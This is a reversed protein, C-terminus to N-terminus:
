VIRNSIFCLQEPALTLLYDRVVQQTTVKKTEVYLKHLKYIIPKFSWTMTEYNMVHSIYTMMYERHISNVMRMFKHNIQSYQHVFEPYYSYFEELKGMKALRFYNYLHSPSNGRLEQIRDYIDTRVKYRLGDTSTLIYGEFDYEKEEKAATLLQEYSEFAQQEPRSIGRIALTVEKMLSPDYTLTHILHPTEYKTVIRNEPHCLVFSYCYKPNLQSYDLNKSAEVFLEYFSKEGYFKARLANICRTTAVMWNGNYNYLRLQTGDIAKQVNVSQWDDFAFMVDERKRYTYCVVKNTEKELIIGRCDRVVPDSMVSVNKRYTVLYLSPHNDDEKITLKFKDSQLERCVDEFSVIRNNTLHNILNM